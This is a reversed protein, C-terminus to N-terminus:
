GGWRAIPLDGAEPIAENSLQEFGLSPSHAWTETSMEELSSCQLHGGAMVRWLGSCGGRAPGGSRISSAGMFRNELM